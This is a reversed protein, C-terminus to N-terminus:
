DVAEDPQVRSEALLEVQMARLADMERSLLGAAAEEHCGQAIRGSLQALRLACCQLRESLSQETNM